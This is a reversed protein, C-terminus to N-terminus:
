CLREAGAGWGGGCVVCLVCCVVCLVCCPGCAVPSLGSSTGGGGLDKRAAGLLLAGSCRVSLDSYRSAGSGRAQVGRGWGCYNSTFSCRCLGTGRWYRQSPCQRQQETV